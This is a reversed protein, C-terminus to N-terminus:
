SNSAGPTTAGVVFDVDNHKTDHGNPQRAISMGNAPATAAAGEVLLNNASGWGVSDVVAGSPDRLGVAGGTDSLGGAGFQVDSSGGYGSGAALLYGGAPISRSFAVLVFSDSTATAARYV